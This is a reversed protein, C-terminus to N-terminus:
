FSETGNKTSGSYAKKSGKIVVLTALQKFGTEGVFTPGM